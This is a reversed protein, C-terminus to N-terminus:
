AWFFDQRGLAFSCHRFVEAGLVLIPAGTSSMQFISSELFVKKFFPASNPKIFIYEIFTLALAVFPLSAGAPLVLHMQSNPGRLSFTVTSISYDFLIM